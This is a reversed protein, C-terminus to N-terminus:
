FCLDFLKKLQAGTFAKDENELRGMMRCRVTNNIDDYGKAAADEKWLAVREETEKLYEEFDKAKMSKM